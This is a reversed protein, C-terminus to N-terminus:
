QPNIFVNLFSSSLVWFSMKITNRTCTTANTFFKHQMQQKMLVTRYFIVGQLCIKYIIKGTWPVASKRLFSLCWFVLWRHGTCNMPCTWTACEEFIDKQLGRFVYKHVHILLQFHYWYHMLLMFIDPMLGCLYILKTCQCRRSAQFGGAPLM